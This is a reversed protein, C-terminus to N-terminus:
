MTSVATYVSGVATPVPLPLYRHSLQLYRCTGLYRYSSGPQHPAALVCRVPRLALETDGFEWRRTDGTSNETTRVNSCCLDQCPTARGVRARLVALPALAGHGRPQPLAVAGVWADRIAHLAHLIWQGYALRTM